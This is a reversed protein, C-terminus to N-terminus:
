FIGTEDYTIIKTLLNPEEPLWEIIDSYMEFWNDKQEQYSKETGDKCLSQWTENM